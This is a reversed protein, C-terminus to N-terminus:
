GAEAERQVHIEDSLSILKRWTNVRLEGSQTSLMFGLPTRRRDTLKAARCSRVLASTAWCTPPAAATM